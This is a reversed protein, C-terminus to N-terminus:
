VGGGCGPAVSKVVERPDPSGPYAYTLDHWTRGSLRYSPGQEILLYDGLLEGITHQKRCDCRYRLPNRRRYEDFADIARARRERKNAQIIATLVGVEHTWEQPISMSAAKYRDCAQLLETLRQEYWLWRPMIGLPPKAKRIRKIEENWGCSLCQWYAVIAPGGITLPEAWRIPMGCEPCPDCQKRKGEAIRALEDNEKKRQCECPANHPDSCWPAHERAHILFAEYRRAEECEPCDCGPIPVNSRSASVDDIHKAIKNGAMRLSDLIFSRSPAYNKDIKTTIPGVRRFYNEGYYEILSRETIGSFSVLVEAFSKDYFLYRIKSGPPVCDILYRERDPVSTVYNAVRKRGAIDIYLNM